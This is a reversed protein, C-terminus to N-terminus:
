FAVIAHMCVNYIDALEKERRQKRNVYNNKNPVKQKPARVSPHMIFNPISNELELLGVFTSTFNLYTNSTEM